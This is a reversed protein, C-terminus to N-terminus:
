IKKNKRGRDKDEDFDGYCCSKDTDTNNNQIDTYYYNNNNNNNNQFDINNEIITNNNNNVGSISCNGFFNLNNNDNNHINDVNNNKNNNNKSNNYNENNNNNKSNNVNNKVFFNNTQNEVNKQEFNNPTIVSFDDNCIVDFCNLKLLEYFNTAPVIAAFNEKFNVIDAVSNFFKDIEVSATKPAVVLDSSDLLFECGILVGIIERRFIVGGGSLGKWLKSPILQSTYMIGENLFSINCYNAFLGISSKGYICANTGLKTITGSNCLPIAYNLLESYNIDNRDIKILSVDFIKGQNREAFYGKTLFIKEWTLSIHSRTDKKLFNLIVILQPSAVVKDPVNKNSKPAKSKFCHSCSTCYLINDIIVLTGSSYSMEYGFEQICVQVHGNV